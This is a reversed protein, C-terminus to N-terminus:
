NELQKKFNKSLKVRNNYYSYANEKDSFYNSKSVLEKDIKYSNESNLKVEYVQVYVGYPKNTSYEPKITSINTYYIKNNKKDKTYIESKRNQYVSNSKIKPNQKLKNIYIKEYKKSKIM